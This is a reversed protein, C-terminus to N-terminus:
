RTILELVKHLVEQESTGNVDLTSHCAKEYWNLRRDYARLIEKQYDADGLSPRINKKELISLRNIIYSKDIYLYITFFNEKLFQVNHNSMTQERGEVIGGGCDLIFKDHHLNNVEILNEQELQRFKNWNYSNVISTITMDQKKEIWSDLSVLNYNIKKSLLNTLTTKGVGQFGIFAIKSYEIKLSENSKKNKHQSVNLKNKNKVGAIRTIM